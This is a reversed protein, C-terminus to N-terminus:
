RDAYIEVVEVTTEKLVDALGGGIGRVNVVAPLSLESAIRAVLDAHQVVTGLRASVTITSLDAGSQAIDVYVGPQTGTSTQPPAPFTIPTLTITGDSATHTYYSVGSDGVVVRGKSDATRTQKASM